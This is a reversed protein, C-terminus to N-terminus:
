PRNQQILPLYLNRHSPGIVNLTVRVRQSETSGDRTITVVGLYDGAALGAPDVRLELDAPTAGSTPGLSLWATDSAAQWALPSAEPNRLSVTQTQVESSGVVAVFNTATPAAVIRAPPIMVDDSLVITRTVVSSAGAADTARLTITHIGITELDADLSSGNGLFGDQNSYWSYASEPLAGDERDTAAGSLPILQGYGFTAHEQPTIMQVTPPQNPIGFFGASDAQGTNVGDSVIVRVKGQTTGGLEALPIVVGTGTLHLRLPAYSAGGDRSYLVTAVLADGDRDDATWSVTLGGDDVTEGGAPATVTVTPAHASIVREALVSAGTVIQIRTAGTVFPVQEMVLLPKSLDEPDETDMRPTFPYTALVSGGAGILRIAFPGPASSALVAPATLRYIPGLTAGPTAPTVTGQVVLYEAAPATALGAAAATNEAVLRSRIGEYTYASIWQNNCYTMVDKWTPPYVVPGRLYIDFGWYANQGNRRGISGSEGMPYNPDPGGEDGRCAVHSRGWTHALEHGTYWDGYSEGDTDWPYLVANGTPGSAIFSPIGAACGRMFGGGDSVLGYYRTPLPDVGAWKLFLNDWFLRGNVEGCTPLRNLDTMDEVDRIVILHAIPYARRLWDEV